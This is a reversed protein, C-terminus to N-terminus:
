HTNLTTKTSKPNKTPNKTPKSPTTPKSIKTSKPNKTPNKTPKSPTTPKSIKTSKPDKTPNKTPKPDKTPKTPKTEKILEKTHKPDKTPKPDKISKKTHKPDKTHKLKINQKLTDQEQKLVNFKEVLKDIHKICKEKKNPNAKMETKYDKIKEKIKLLKDTFTQLIIKHKLNDIQILYKDLKTNKYKDKIIKIQEKIIQIKNISGGKPQHELIQSLRTHEKRKQEYAVMQEATRPGGRQLSEYSPETANDSMSGQSYVPTSNQPFVTNYMREAKNAFQSVSRTVYSPNQMGEVSRTFSGLKDEAKKELQAKERRKNDLLSGVGPDNKALNDKHSHTLGLVEALYRKGLNVKTGPHLYSDALEVSKTYSLPIHMGVARHDSYLIRGGAVQEESVGIVNEPSLFGGEVTQTSIVDDKHHVVLHTDYNAINDSGKTKPYLSAFGANTNSVVLGYIELIAKAEESLSSMVFFHSETNQNLDGSLILRHYLLKPKGDANFEQKRTHANIVPDTKKLHDLIIKNQLFAEIAQKLMDEAKGADGSPFHACFSWVSGGYDNKFHLRVGFLPFDSPSGPIAPSAVFLMMAETKELDVYRVPFVILLKRQQTAQGNQGYVSVARENGVMFFVDTTPHRFVQIRYDYGIRGDQGRGPIRTILPEPLTGDPQPQDEFFASQWSGEGSLQVNGYYCHLKVWRDRKIFRDAGKSIKLLRRIFDVQVEQLLYIWNSLPDTLFNDLDKLYQDKPLTLSQPPLLVGLDSNTKGRNEDSLINAVTNHTIVILKNPDRLPIRSGTPIKFFRKPLAGGLTGTLTTFVPRYFKNFFKQCEDKYDPDSMRDKLGDKKLRKLTTADDRLPLVLRYFGIGSGLTKVRTTKNTVILPLVGYNAYEAETFDVRSEIISDNLDATYHKYQGNNAFFYPSLRSLLIHNKYEIYTLTEPNATFRLLSAFLYYSDLGNSSNLLSLKYQEISEKDIRNKQSNNFAVIKDTTESHLNALTYNSFENPIKLFFVAQRQNAEFLAEREIYSAADPIETVKTTDPERLLLVELYIDGVAPNAPRRKASLVYLAEQNQIEHIIDTKLNGRNLISLLRFDRDDIITRRKIPLKQEPLDLFQTFTTNIKYYDSSRQKLLENFCNAGMLAERSDLIKQRNKEYEVQEGLLAQEEPTVPKYYRDNVKIYSSASLSSERIGFRMVQQENLKIEAKDGLNSIENSLHINEFEIGIKPPKTGIYRWLDGLSERRDVM